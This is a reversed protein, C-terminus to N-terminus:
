KRRVEREPTMSRFLELAAVDAMEQL